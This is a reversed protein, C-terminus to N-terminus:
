QINSYYFYSLLIIFFFTKFTNWNYKIDGACSMRGGTEYFCKEIPSLAINNPSIATQTHWQFPVERDRFDGSGLQGSANEGWCWFEKSENKICSYNDSVALQEVNKIIEVPKLEIATKGNGLQGYNNPGLCWISGDFKLACVNEDNAVVESWDHSDDVPVPFRRAYLEVNSTQFYKMDGGCWLSNDTKIACLHHHGTAISKWTTSIDVFQPTDYVKVIADGLSVSALQGWCLINKGENLACSYSENINDAPIIADMTLWNFKSEIRSLSHQFNNEQVAVLGNGLQGVYNRGWCWLTNDMKLACNVLGHIFLAQWDQNQLVPKNILYPDFHPLLDVRGFCEMSNSTDKTIGCTLDQGVSVTKWKKSDSSIKVPENVKDPLDVGLRHNTNNGWCWLNDDTTIACTHMPGASVERWTKDAGIRTPTAQPEFSKNGIQGRNNRGWCLLSNDVQIICTHNGGMSIKLTQTPIVEVESSLAGEGSDNVSTLAVYHKTGNILGTQTFPSKVNELKMWGSLTQYNELSIGPSRSIYVNYQKASDIETWSVTLSESGPVVKVDQPAVPPPKPTIVTRDIIEKESNNGIATVTIYYPKNNELNAIVVEHNTTKIPNLKSKNFEISDSYYVLYYDTGEVASWQVTVSQNSAKASISPPAPQSLEGGPDCGGLFMATVILFYLCYRKTLYKSLNLNFFRIPFEYFFNLM